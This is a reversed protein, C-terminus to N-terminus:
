HDLVDRVKRALSDLTFPKPLYALGGLGDEPSIARDSYGSMIIVKMEPRLSAVRDYLERGSMQPMVMDTLMLHITGAHHQCLEVAEPAGAVEFVKYGSMELVERALDRVQPEDEVLLVTESGGAPATPRDSAAVADVEADVRPLFIAFSTGQGPTSDVTIWGGSQKVIGYVTSLGLGTGKGEGKTTFFPEFIHSLTQQDMGCGTDTVKLRVYGDAASAATPELTGRDVNATEIRLRGGGAMADRANVALNMIVQELQGPDARVRGLAPCRDFRLEVDEGIMRRLMKDMDEVVANLDVVRPCLVQRRSFALLQRTLAAAREAAKRVEEANSRLAHGDGLHRLLLETYGTIVTLLNNFDHAVGGALRGIAEMKQAQRLQEESFRLAQETRERQEVQRQLESRGRQVDTLAAELNRVTRELEANLAEVESLRRQKEELRDKHSRYFSSILLAPPIGLALGWVPLRELVFLLCAALTLGSFFSVTTWGLNSRWVQVLPQRKDLAIVVAVLGTNVVFYAVSAGLLPGFQRVVPGGVVGGLAHFTHFAAATTLVVSGLNFLTRISGPRRGGQHITAGWLGAIAALIGAWPGFRALACLVFPHTAVLETRLSSIRVPRAGALGALGAVVLSVAPLSWRHSLSFQLVTAVAAVGIVGVYTRVLRTQVALSGAIRGPM